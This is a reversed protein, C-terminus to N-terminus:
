QHLVQGLRNREWMLSVQGERVLTDVADVAVDPNLYIGDDSFSDPTLNLIGVLEVKSM